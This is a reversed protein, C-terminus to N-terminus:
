CSSAGVGVTGLSVDNVEVEEEISETELRTVGCTLTWHQLTFRTVLYTKLGTKDARLAHIWASTLLYPPALLHM